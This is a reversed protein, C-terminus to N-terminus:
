MLLGGALELFATVIRLIYMLKSHISGSLSFTKEEVFCAKFYIPYTPITSLERSNSGCSDNQSLPRSFIRNDACYRTLAHYIEFYNFPCIVDFTKRFIEKLYKFDNSCSLNCLCVKYHIINSKM